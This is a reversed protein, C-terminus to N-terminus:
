ASSGGGDQMITIHELEKSIHAATSTWIFNLPLPTARKLYALGELAFRVCNCHCALALEAKKKHGM